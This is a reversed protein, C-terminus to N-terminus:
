INLWRELGLAGKGPRSQCCILIQNHQNIDSEQSTRKKMERAESGQGKCTIKRNRIGREREGGGMM